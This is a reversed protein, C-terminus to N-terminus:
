MRAYIGGQAMLDEHRGREAIEGNALVIIDDARVISSLRHAIVLTTIGRAAVALNAVIEAETLSDLASTAEDAILLRPRKLAIRAFWVRQKEGGSLKLGREGVVTQFGDPLKAILGELNAMRAARALDDLSTDFEPFGINYALSANFLTTDQPVVAIQRRLEAPPLSDIPAGDFLIRGTDPEYFRLMLRAVSSKGGGSPGVLATLAGPAIEFSLRNLVPRGEVYSFSVDDFAVRLPDAPDATAQSPGESQLEVHEGMLAILREIYAIGQGIDRIGYGLLELPRVIQLMYANILVFDGLTMAGARVRIVGITMTAALGAVFLVAILLGNAFRARFYDRWKGQTVSLTDDYRRTVAEEGAFAKVTEFNLLGDALQANADIRATALSRSAAMVKRAGDVFVAVYALACLAFIGVFTLDLLSAVIVAMVTLEVLGPLITFVAHQMVLRFGLLGNELTQGIAGTARELHFKLPLAMIHAFVRRSLKRSISQEAEGFLLIRLETAIRSFWSAGVHAALFLFPAAVLERSLGSAAAGAEGSLADILLKLALPGLASLTAAVVVCIFAASLRGVDAGDLVNHLGM